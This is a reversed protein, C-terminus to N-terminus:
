LDPGIRVHVRLLIDDNLPHAFDIRAPGLPSRWRLGTGVSLKLGTNRGSGGFANGGDVFGAVAWRQAVSRELEMSFVGLHRGGIVRGRRDKPGLDEFAYGRISLDGGAFFRETPPLLGFNDTWSAGAEVRALVRWRPAFGRVVRLSAVARVLNVDSLLADSTGRIEASASYGRTPYLADNTTTKTWRLGPILLTSVRKRHGIDFAQRDLHIFRTELIGWPRRHTDALGIQTEDSAFNDANKRKVGAQLSLWEDAPHERPIQYEGSLSQEILSARVEANLRHGAANIRRDAYALHVRAGEDTSAGAGISYKHRKRPTLTIEIPIRADVPAGLQPRIDVQDFYQSAALATYFRTILESEYAQEPSYDLFRRVLEARVVPPQQNVTVVGVRHRSGSAYILRARAVNRKIDVELRNELFRGALYGRDLAVGEILRKTASYKDHNLRAGVTMPLHELLTMFGADDRAAGDIRLTVAEVVVRPGQVVDIVLRPCADTRIVRTRVAGHYYGYAHLADQSEEVARTALAALYAAPTACARTTASVHARINRALRDGVGRVAVKITPASVVPQAVPETAPWPLVGCASCLASLVFPALRRWCRGANNGLGIGCSM